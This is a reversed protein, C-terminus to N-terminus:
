GRSAWSWATGLSVVGDQDAMVSADAEMERGGDEGRSGVGGQDWGSGGGRSFGQLAFYWGVVWGLGVEWRGDWGSGGGM